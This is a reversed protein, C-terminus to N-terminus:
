LADDGTFPYLDLPAPYALALVKFLEGMEDAQTLRNKQRSLKDIKDPNAACLASFRAELGMHHLFAAQSIIPSTIVGEAEATARVMPFDAWQTLDHQGPASLPDQKEHRYLAQL